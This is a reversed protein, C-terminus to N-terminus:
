LRIRCEQHGPHAPAETPEQLTEMSGWPRVMSCMKLCELMMWVRTTATWSLQRLLLIAEISPMEARELVENNSVCDRWKIGMISRLCCQHFLELLQLRRMYLVWAESVYLLTKFVMARYTKVKTLQRLSHNQWVWKQLCSFASSAKGLRSDADKAVQADQSINRLYKFHQSPPQCYHDTPPFVHWM